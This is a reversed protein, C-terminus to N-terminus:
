PVVGSDKLIHAIRNMSYQTKLSAVVQVLEEDSGVGFADRVFLATTIISLEVASFAGYKEVIKHIEAKGKEDILQELSNDGPTIFYGENPVWVIEVAGIDEAFNLESFAQASYPGYHYMAYDFDVVGARTLLFLLKQIVTKGVQKDPYTESMRKVLYAVLAPGKFISERM